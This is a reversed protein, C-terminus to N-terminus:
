TTRTALPRSMCVSSLTHQLGDCRVIRQQAGAVTVFVIKGRGANYAKLISLVEETNKHASSIHTIHHIGRQAVADTIKDIHKQDSTSGALVVVTPSSRWHVHRLYFDWLRAPNRRAM